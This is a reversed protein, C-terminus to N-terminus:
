MKIWKGVQLVQAQANTIRYTYLGSSWTRCDITANHNIKGKYIVAGLANFFSIEIDEIAEEKQLTINLKDSGPNPFITFKDQNYLDKTKIICNISPNTYNPMNPFILSELYLPLKLTDKAFQCASGDKNPQMIVSLSKQKYGHIYIRGDPALKMDGLYCTAFSCTTDKPSINAITTIKDNQINYQILQNGSTIYLLKSDSSFAAGSFRYFRQDISFVKAAKTIIEGKCREFGFLEVKLPEGELYTGQLMVIYKGDPSYVSQIQGTHFNNKYNLFNSSFNTAQIGQSKIGKEDILFRHFKVPTGQERFILWWDAGNEHKYLMLGGSLWNGSAALKRKIIIEGQGHNANSSMNILSYYLEALKNPTSIEQTLLVYHNALIKHPFLLSGQLIGTNLLTNQVTLSTIGLSDILPFILPNPYPVKNLYVGNYKLVIAGKSTSVNTSSMILPSSNFNGNADSTDPLNAIFPPYSTGNKTFDIAVAGFDQELIDKSYSGSLMWTADFQASLTNFYTLFISFILLIKKM